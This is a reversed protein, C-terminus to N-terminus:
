QVLTSVCKRMVNCRNDRSMASPRHLAMTLPLVIQLPIPVYLEAHQAADARVVYMM